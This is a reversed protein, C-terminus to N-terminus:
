AWFSRIERDEYWGISRRGECSSPSAQLQKHNCRPKCIMHENFVKIRHTALRSLLDHLGAM